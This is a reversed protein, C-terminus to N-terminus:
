EIDHRGTIPDLRVSIHTAGKYKLHYVGAGYKVSGDAKNFMVIMEGSPHAQSSGTPAEYEVEEVSESLWIDKSNTKKTFTGGSYYGIEIKTGTRNLYTKGNEVVGAAHNTIRMCLKTADSANDSLASTQTFLTTFANDLTNASTTVKAQKSIGLNVFSMAALIAMIAIVIIMEIMTYGQNKKM